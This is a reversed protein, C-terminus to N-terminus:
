KKKLFEEVKEKIIDKTGLAFALAIGFCFSALIIIFIDGIFDSAIGIEQLALVTGFVIIAIKTLKGLFSAKEIGANGASTRVIGEFFSGLFISFIFILLGLIFKPIFGLIKDIITPPIQIGAFNIALFVVALMLLWYVGIGLLQSVEMTINGKDLLEKLGSDESLKDVKIYRFFKIILLKLFKAILWGILFILLAGIVKSLSFWFKSILENLVSMREGIM